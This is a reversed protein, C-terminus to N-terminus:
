GGAAPGHDDDGAGPHKQHMASTFPATRCVARACSSTTPACCRWCKPACWACSSRSSFIALTVAPLTITGAHSADAARFEVLGNCSGGRGFSPFGDWRSPFCRDAPHHRVHAALCGAAVTDHVGPQFQWTSRPMCVVARGHGAGPFGGGVVAGAHCSLARCDTAVGERGPAPEFWIRRPGRQGSIALSCLLTQGAGPRACSGSRTLRRMRVWCCFVVPDGVYRFLMFSIFAVTVLIIVAQILRRLIFALM